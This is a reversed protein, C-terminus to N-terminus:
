HEGPPFVKKMKFGHVMRWTIFYSLPYPKNTVQDCILHVTFGLWAGAVWANWDSVVLMIFIVIVYEWGHLLLVAQSLDRQECRKYFSLLGVRFRCNIVYDVLHDLDILVGGVFFGVSLGLSRTTAYLIGACVLSFASHYELKM